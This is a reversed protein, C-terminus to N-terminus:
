YAPNRQQRCYLVSAAAVVMMAVVLFEQRAAANDVKEYQAKRQPCSALTMTKNVGVKVGFHGLRM